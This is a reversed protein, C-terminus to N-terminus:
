SQISFIATQKFAFSVETCLSRDYKESFLSHTALQVLAVVTSPMTVVMTLQLSGNMPVSVVVALGGVGAEVFSTGGMSLLSLLEESVKGDLGGDDDDDDDDDDTGVLPTM